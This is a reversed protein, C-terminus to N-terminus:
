IYNLLTNQNVKSAAQLAGQYATYASTYDIIIDSLERDDNTSKLQEITMQQNSVRTQTLELQDGKSGVTTIALNVNTLYGDFNGIYTNYLRKLNDDAYDAEKEAADLWEKIKAQDEDSAYEELGQLEKIQDVKAHADMSYQVANIMEDVDRGASADLVDSANTNINLNQNSAILYNIDQSIEKGAADYKEYIKYNEPKPDTKDTCNFYYEPRLEGKGFGTKQYDVAIQYDNSKIATTVDKGLIMEGTEAIVVIDNDGVSEEFAGAAFSKKWDEITEFTTVKATGSATIMGDLNHYKLKGNADLTGDTYSLSFGVIQKQMNGNADQVEEVDLDGYAFRIRDASM